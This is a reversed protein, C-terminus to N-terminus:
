HLGSGFLTFGLTLVQIPHLQFRPSEIMQFYRLNFLCDSCSSLGSKYKAASSRSLLRALCQCLNGSLPTTCGRFSAELELCVFFSSCRQLRVVASSSLYDFSLIQLISNLGTVRYVKKSCCIVLLMRCFCYDQYQRRRLIYLLHYTSGSHKTLESISLIQLLSIYISNAQM